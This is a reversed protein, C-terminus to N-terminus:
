KKGGKWKFGNISKASGVRSEQYREVLDMVTSLTKSTEEVGTLVKGFGSSRLEAASTARPLEAARLMKEVEILDRDSLVKLRNAENLAEQSKQTAIGQKALDVEAKSRQAELGSRASNVVTDALGKRPNTLQAVSGSPTSAGSGGYGSLIPNLGAERLDKVERQHATNSMREQFQRNRDAEELQADKVKEASHAEVASTGAGFAAYLAPIIMNFM